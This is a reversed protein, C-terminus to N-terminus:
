PAGRLYGALHEVRLSSAFLAADFSAWPIFNVTTNGARVVPLANDAFRGQALTTLTVFLATADASLTVPVTGDADPAGVAFAVRARPLALAYPAAFFAFNEAVLRGSADRLEVLAACDSGDAACGVPALLAPWGPCPAALVDVRPDVCSWRTAGGGRPLSVNVAALATTAGTAFHVLSVAAAGALPAFADDSRVVLQAFSSVAVLANTFSFRRLWYHLPKWRGGEVQGPTFGVTGYEVSGWGGTPWIENFAWILAGWSNAARRGEIDGKVFLAQALLSFYLKEQLDAEGTTNFDAPWSANSVSVVFNDVAYNREFFPRAHLAWHDSRITPALSEFSPMSVAGFESAFTGHCAGAGTLAPPPLYPPFSLQFPQLEAISNRTKFGQGHQYV